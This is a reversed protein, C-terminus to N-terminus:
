TLPFIVSASHVESCLHREAHSISSRDKSSKTRSSDSVANPESHHSNLQPAPSPTRSPHAHFRERHQSPPRLNNMSQSQDRTLKESLHDTWTKAPRLRFSYERNSPKLKFSSKSAPFAQTFCGRQDFTLKCQHRLVPSTQLTKSSNFTRTTSNQGLNEDYSDPGEM